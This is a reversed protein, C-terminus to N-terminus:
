RKKADDRMRALAKRLVTRLHERIAERQRRREPAGKDDAKGSMSGAIRAQSPPLSGAPIAWQTDWPRRPRPGIGRYRTLSFVVSSARAM